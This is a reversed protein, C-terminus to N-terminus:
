VMDYVVENVIQEKNTNNFNLGPTESFIKHSDKIQQSAIAYAGIFKSSDLKPKTWKTYPWISTYTIIILLMNIGILIQSSQKNVICDGDKIVYSTLIIIITLLILFIINSKHTHLIWTFRNYGYKELDLVNIDPIHTSKKIHDNIPELENNINM